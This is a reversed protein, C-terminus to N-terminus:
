KQRAVYDEVFGKFIVAAQARTASTKPSITTASTGSILGEAVAWQVAGKAWGSITSADKYAELSVSKTTNYKKYKAYAMFFTALQERTVAANPAFTTASTGGTVGKDVAWQVAKAFWNKENVDSFKGSYTVKSLDVGDVKALVQVFMARTLQGNPNFSTESVGTIYQKANCYLAGSTFWQNAKVDTFPNKVAVFIVPDTTVVSDGNSGNWVECRYARTSERDDFEFTRKGIESISGMKSWTKLDGHMDYAWWYRVSGQGKPLTAVIEAEFKSETPVYITGSVSKIITPRAFYEGIKVYNVPDSGTKYQIKGDKIECGDPSIIARYGKIAVNIGTIANLTDPSKASFTVNDCVTLTSGKNGYIANSKSSTLAINADGTMVIGSSEKSSSYVAFVNDTQNAAVLSSKEAGTITLTHGKTSTPNELSFIAGTRNALIVSLDKVNVTADTDSFTFVDADRVTTDLLAFISMDLTKASKNWTFGLGAMDDTSENFTINECTNLTVVKLASAEKNSSDKYYVFYGYYTTGVTKNASTTVTYDILKSDSALLAGKVYGGRTGKTVKCWESKTITYGSDVTVDVHFTGGQGVVSYLTDSIGVVGFRVPAAASVAFPIVTVIMMVCIIASIIKNITRM